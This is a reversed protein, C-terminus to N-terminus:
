RLVDCGRFVRDFHYLLELWGVALSGPIWFWPLDLSCCLSRFASLCSCTCLLFLCGCHWLALSRSCLFWYVISLVLGCWLFPVSPSKSLLFCPLRQTATSVVIQNSITFDYFKVNERIYM